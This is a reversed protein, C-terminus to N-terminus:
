LFLLMGRSIGDPDPPINTVKVSPNQGNLGFIEVSAAPIDNIGNIDKLFVSCNFLLQNVAIGYDALGNPDYRFFLKNQSNMQVVGQNEEFNYPEFKNGYAQFVGLNLTNPFNSSSNFNNNVYLTKPQGIEGIQFTKTIVFTDPFKLTDKPQGEVSSVYEVDIFPPNYGESTDFRLKPTILNKSIITDTVLNTTITQVEPPNKLILGNTWAPLM